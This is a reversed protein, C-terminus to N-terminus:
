PMSRKRAAESRRAAKADLLCVELLEALYPILPVPAVGIDGCDRVHTRYKGQVFEDPAGEELLRRVLTVAQLPYEQGPPAIRRYIGEARAAARAAGRRPSRPIRGAFPAESAQTDSRMDAPTGRDRVLRNRVAYERIAADQFRVAPPRADRREGDATQVYAKDRWVNSM